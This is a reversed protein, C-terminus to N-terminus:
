FLLNEIEELRRHLVEIKLNISGPGGNLVERLSSESTQKSGEVKEDKPFPGSIRDSLREAHHIVEDLSNISAQLQIHKPDESVPDCATEICVKSDEPYNM